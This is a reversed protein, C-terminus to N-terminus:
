ADRECSNSLSAVVVRSYDVQAVALRVWAVVSDHFDVVSAAPVEVIRIEAYRELGSVSSCCAVPIHPEIGPKKCSSPVGRVGRLDGGIGHDPHTTDVTGPNVVEIIEFLGPRSANWPPRKIRPFIM